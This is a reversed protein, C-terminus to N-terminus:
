LARCYQACLGGFAFVELECRVRRALLSIDGVTLVRPLVVRKAGFADVLFQVAEANSASAQVSVHLRQEPYCEAVYAMLGMDALILADVGIRVADDAARYWVDEDGARM